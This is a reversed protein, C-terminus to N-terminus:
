ISLFGSFVISFNFIQTLLFSSLVVLFTCKVIEFTITQIPQTDDPDLFVKVYNWVAFVSLVVISIVIISNYANILINDKTLLDNIINISNLKVFSSYIADIFCYILNIITWILFNFIDSILGM